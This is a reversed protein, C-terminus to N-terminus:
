HARPVRTRLTGTFDNKRPDYDTSVPSYIDHGIDAARSEGSASRALQPGASRTLVLAAAMRKV